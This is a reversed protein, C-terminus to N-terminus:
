AQASFDRGPAPIPTVEGTTSFDASTPLEPEPAVGREANRHDNLAQRLSAPNAFGTIEAIRSMTMGTSNASLLQLAHETRIQRLTATLTTNKEALARQLSRGSINLAAAVSDVTLNRSTSHLRLYMMATEYPTREVVAAFAAIDQAELILAAVSDTLLQKVLYETLRGNDVTRSELLSSAFALVGQSISSPQTRESTSHVEWVSDPLSSAPLYICVARGQDIWRISRGRDPRTWYAGGPPIMTGDVMVSGTTVLVLMMDDSSTAPFWDFVDNFHQQTVAFEGFRVSSSVTPVTGAAVHRAYVRSISARHNM